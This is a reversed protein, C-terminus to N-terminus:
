NENGNLCLIRWANIAKRNLHWFTWCHIYRMIDLLEIVTRHCKVFFYNKQKNSNNTLSVSSESMFSSAAILISIAASQFRSASLSVFHIWTKHQCLPGTVFLHRHKSNLHCQLQQYGFILPVSSQCVEYKDCGVCRSTTYSFKALVLIKWNFPSFSSWVTFFKVCVNTAFQRM